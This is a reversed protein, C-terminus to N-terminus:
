TLGVVPFTTALTAQPYQFSPLRQFHKKEPSSSSRGSLAECFEDGLKCACLERGAKDIAWTIIRSQCGASSIIHVMAREHM